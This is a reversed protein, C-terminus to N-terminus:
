LGTRPSSFFLRLRLDEAVAAVNFETVAAMYFMAVAAVSNVAM